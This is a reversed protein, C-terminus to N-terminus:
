VSIELVDTQECVVGQWECVHRSVNWSSLKSPNSISNKFALLTSIPLASVFSSSCALLCCLLLLPQLCLFDITLSLFVAPVVLCCGPWKGPKALVTNHWIM